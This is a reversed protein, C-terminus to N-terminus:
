TLLSSSPSLAVVCRIVCWGEEKEEQEKQNGFYGATDSFLDLLLM